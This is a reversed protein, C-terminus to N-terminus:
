RFNRGKPLAHATGPSTVDLARATTELLDLQDPSRSLREKRKIGAAVRRDPGDTIPRKVEDANALTEVPVADDCLAVLLPTQDEIREAVVHIIGNENQLRGHVIMFRAGLVIPRDREFVKPWVIVNAIGHEDELTMFIVGKASGPRQRVLVLGAVSIRRGNRTTELDASPIVRRANLMPRVFQVPHAKLSHRLFRYDNVVEEGPPMAPLHADPERRRNDACAFLPLDQGDDGTRGLAKVAWLADRRSLGLSGFVDADALRELSAADLGTRLWLDRVSDYGGGRRAVIADVAAERLGKIERLGLRVARTSLIDGAMDRNRPHLAAPPLM